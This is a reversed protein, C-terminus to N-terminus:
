KTASLPHFTFKHSLVIRARADSNVSEGSFSRTDVKFNLVENPLMGDPYFVLNVKGDEQFTLQFSGKIDDVSPFSLIGKGDYNRLKFVDKMM